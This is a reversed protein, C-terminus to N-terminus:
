DQMVPELLHIDLLELDMKISEKIDLFSMHQMNTSSEINTRIHALM